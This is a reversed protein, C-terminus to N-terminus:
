DLDTGCYKCIRHGMIPTSGEKHVCVSKTETKDTSEVVEAYLFKDLDKKCFDNESIEEMDLYYEGAILFNKCSPKVTLLTVNFDDLPSPYEGILTLEQDFGKTRFVFVRDGSVSSPSNLIDYGVILRKIKGSEYDSNAGIVLTRVTDGLMFDNIIEVYYKM